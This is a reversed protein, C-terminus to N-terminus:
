FNDPLNLLEDLTDSFQIRIGTEKKNKNGTDNKSDSDKKSDSDNDAKKAETPNKSVSHTKQTKSPRGGKSGNLKNKECTDQYKELDRNFQNRFPIFIMRTLTDLEPEIGINYDYCAKLLKGAQEDTLENLIELSDLHLIFSKKM